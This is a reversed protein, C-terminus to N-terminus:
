AKRGMSCGVFNSSMMLRLVARARPNVIGGDGSARASWTM